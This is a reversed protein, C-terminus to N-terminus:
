HKGYRRRHEEYEDYPHEKDTEVTVFDHLDIHIGGPLTASVGWRDGDLYFYVKEEGDYYVDKSPYYRYKRYKHKSYKERKSHHKKDKWHKKMEKRHKRAEREQEKQFKHYEREQEERFKRYERDQEAQFRYEEREQEEYHKREKKGHDDAYLTSTLPLLSILTILILIKKMTNEEKM